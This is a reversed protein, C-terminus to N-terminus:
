LFEGVGIIVKREIFELVVFKVRVMWRKIVVKGNIEFCYCKINVVRVIRFIINFLIIVRVWVLM